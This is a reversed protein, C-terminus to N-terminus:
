TFNEATRAYKERCKEICDDCYCDSVPVPAPVQRVASGKKGCFECPSEKRRKEYHVCSWFLHHNTGMGWSCQIPSQTSMGWEKVGCEPCWAEEEAWPAFVEHECTWIVASCVPCNAPLDYYPM